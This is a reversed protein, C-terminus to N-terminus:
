DEFNVEKKINIKHMLFQNEGSSKKEFNLTDGMVSKQVPSFGSNM